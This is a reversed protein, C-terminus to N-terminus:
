LHDRRSSVQSGWLQCITGFFTNWSSNCNCNIAQDSTVYHWKLPLLALINVQCSLPFIILTVSYSYCISHLANKQGNKSFIIQWLPEPPIRRECPLTYGLGWFYKHGKEWDDWKSTIRLFNHGFCESKHIFTSTVVNNIIPVILFWNSFM